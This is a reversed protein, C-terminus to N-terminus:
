RAASGHRHEGTRNTGPSKIGLHEGGQGSARPCSVTQPDDSAVVQLTGVQLTPGLVSRPERPESTRPKPVDVPRNVIRFPVAAPSSGRVGIYIRGPDVEGEIKLDFEIFEGQAKFRIPPPKDEGTSAISVTAIGPELCDRVLGGQASNQVREPVLAQAAQLRGTVTIGRQSVAQLQWVGEVDRWIYIGERDFRCPQIMLLQRPHASWATRPTVRGPDASTQSSPYSIGAMDRSSVVQAATHKASNGSVPAKEANAWPGAFLISGAIVAYIHCM